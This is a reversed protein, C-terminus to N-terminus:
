KKTSNETTEKIIHYEKVLDELSKSANASSTSPLYKGEIGTKEILYKNYLDYASKGLLFINEIKTKAILSSVDNVVVYKITRDSSSHIDCEAIVDWLALNHNLIFKKWDDIPEGYLRELIKWFRNTKHGYYKKLERSKISPMSGLILTRSNEDFIPDLTHIVKM